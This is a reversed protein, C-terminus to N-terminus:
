FGSDVMHPVDLAFHRLSFNGSRRVAIPSGHLQFEMRVM